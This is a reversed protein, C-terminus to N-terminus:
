LKSEELEKSILIHIRKVVMLATLFGHLCLFYLVGRDLWVLCNPLSNVSYVALAFLSLISIVILYSVNDYLQDLLRKRKPSRHVNGQDVISFILFLVNVLLPIFVTHAVLGINIYKDQFVVQKWVLIIAVLAPLGYFGIVDRWMIHEGTRDSLTKLHGQIIPFINVKSIM